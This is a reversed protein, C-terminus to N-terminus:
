KTLFDRLELCAEDLTEFSDLNTTSKLTPSTTYLRQGPILLHKSADQSPGKVMAFTTGGTLQEITGCPLFVFGLTTCREISLFAVGTILVKITGSSTSLSNTGKGLLEVTFIARVICCCCCSSKIKDDNGETKLSVGPSVENTEWEM